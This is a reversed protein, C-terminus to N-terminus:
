ITAAKSFKKGPLINTPRPQIFAPYGKFSSLKLSAGEGVGCSRSLAMAQFSTRRNNTLRCPCSSQSSATQAASIETGSLPSCGSKSGAPPEPAADPSGHGPTLRGATVFPNSLASRIHGPEEQSM